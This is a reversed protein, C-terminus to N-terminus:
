TLVKIDARWRFKHPGIDGAKKIGTIKIKKKAKKAEGEILEDLIGAKVEIEHYFGYYYIRGNKKVKSFAEKLFSEKLNPRAMVIVEFKDKIKRFVKKVDGKIIEIKNTLKNRKVNEIAYRNCEKSLEVSVIKEAKSFKGIVIAFPAVGGFMVLVKERNKVMLAIEKRESNLRPSFYCTEVNLRFVCDNEKYLAEKTKEGALYKTKLTRLRGSFKETKELVTRVSKNKILFEEAWKKKGKSDVKINQFKVIAINGIVDYNAM